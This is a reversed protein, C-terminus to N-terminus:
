LYKKCENLWLQKCKTGLENLVNKNHTTGQFDSILKPMIQLDSYNQIYAYMCMFIM